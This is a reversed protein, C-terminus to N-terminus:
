DKRYAHLCLDVKAEYYETELILHKHYVCDGRRADMCVRILSSLSNKPVGDLLKEEGPIYQGNEFVECEKNPM